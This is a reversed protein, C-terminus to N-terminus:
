PNSAAPGSSGRLAELENVEHDMRLLRAAELARSCVARSEEVRGTDRYARSLLSLLRVSERHLPIEPRPVHPELVSVAEAAQGARQLVSGTHYAAAVMQAQNGSSRALGFAVRLHDLAGDFDGLAAASSGAALSASQEAASNGISRADHLVSLALELAEQPRGAMEVIQALSALGLLEGVRDGAERKLAVGERVLREGEEIQRLETLCAGLNELCHGASAKDGARRLGDAAARFTEIAGEIDGLGRRAQAAYVLAQAARLPRGLALLREHAAMADALAQASRGLANGASSRNMLVLIEIDTLGHRRAFELALDFREAGAALNGAKLHVLGANSLGAVELAADGIERGINGCKEYDALSSEFEGRDMSLTARLRLHAARCYRTLRPESPGPDVGLIAEVEAIAADRELPRALRRLAEAAQLLAKARGPRGPVVRAAERAWTVSEELDGALSAEWSADRWLSCAAEVDGAAERHGAALAMFRRGRNMAVFQEAAASHLRARSKKTILSYAADRLLAHRFAHQRDGPLLTEPQAAVMDNRTAAAIAPASDRQILQTLFEEWFFRGVVSAGKIAERDEEGLADLRAVLLGHLGDPIGGAGGALRLPIGELRGHLRLFRALEEVYYPNGAAKESLFRRLENSPEGGLARAAVRGAAADDLDGLAERGFGAPLATGPRATAAIAVTSPLVAALHSLLALSAEDAWHLDEVCLAFPALSRFYSEWAEHTAERRRRPEIDSAEVGPWGLSEAILRAFRERDPGPLAEALAPVGAFTGLLEGFAAYPLRVGDVFRGVRVRAGPMWARMRHRAEALLRSKGIGAPGEVVVREGKRFVRELRALEAERGEVVGSAGPAIRMETRGPIAEFAEFVVVEAARGKLALAPHSRWEVSSRALQEVAATALVRGPDAASMVRQAVNVPDGMATARDGGIGGWLVEGRNLGARLALGDGCRRTERAMELAARVARAPDDEHAVPAGFVAMVVDGIFKDVVGGHREVIVRLISFLRDALVAREAEPRDALGVAQAFVICITRREEM